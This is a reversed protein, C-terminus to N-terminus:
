PREIKTDPENVLVHYAVNDRTGIFLLVLVAAGVGFRAEYFHSSAAFASLLLGACAAFPLLVHFLWNELEPKYASQRWM